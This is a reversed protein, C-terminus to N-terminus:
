LKLMQSNNKLWQRRQQYDPLALSVFKWFDTSHNKAKLHCLEHVAVYDIISMPAMSIRWNFRLTGRNSCSGWRKKQEKVSIKRPRVGLFKAYRRVRQKIINGTEYFYWKTLINKIRQKRDELRMSKDISLLIKRGSVVPYDINNNDRKLKLRYRRGLFLIQEGSEFEKEPYLESLKRFYDQKSLIWPAKKTVVKEIKEESLFHPVRVIVEADPTINIAISRKRRGRKVSYEISKRGFQVKEM